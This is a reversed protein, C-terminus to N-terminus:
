QYPMALMVTVAGKTFAVQGTQLMYRAILMMGATMPSIVNRPTM